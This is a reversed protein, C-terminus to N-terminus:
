WTYFSRYHVDQMTSGGGYALFFLVKKMSNIVQSLIKLEATIWWPKNIRKKLGLFRDDSLLPLAQQHEISYTLPMESFNLSM